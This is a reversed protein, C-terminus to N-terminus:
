LLQISDSLTKRVVGFNHQKCLDCIEQDADEFGAFALRNADLVLEMAIENDGECAEYADGAIQSWTNLIADRTSVSIAIM